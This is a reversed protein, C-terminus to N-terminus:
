VAVSQMELAAVIFFRAVQYMTFDPHTFAIRGAPLGRGPIKPEALTTEPLGTEPLKPDLSEAMRM